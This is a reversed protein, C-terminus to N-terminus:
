ASEETRPIPVWRRRLQPRPDKAAVGTACEPVHCIPCLGDRGATHMIRVHSLATSLEAVRHALRQVTKISMDRENAIM